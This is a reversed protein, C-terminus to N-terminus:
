RSWCMGSTLARMPGAQKFYVTSLPMLPPSAPLGGANM